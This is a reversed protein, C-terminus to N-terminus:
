CSLSGIADPGSPMPDSACWRQSNYASAARRRRPGRSPAVAATPAVHGSVLGRARRQGGPSGLRLVAGGLAALPTAPWWCFLPRVRCRKTSVSPHIMATTTVSAPGSSRRPRISHHAWYNASPTLPPALDPAITGIRGLPTFRPHAAHLLCAREVQLRRGVLLPLAELHSRPAPRHLPGQRPPELITAM